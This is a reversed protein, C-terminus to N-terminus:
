EPKQESDYNLFESLEDESLADKGSFEKKLKELEVDWMSQGSEKLCVKELYLCPIANVDFAQYQYAQIEVGLLSLSKKTQRAFQRAIYVVKPSSGADLNSQPYMKKINLINECAWYYNSLSQAIQTSEKNASLLYFLVLAGEKDVGILDAYGSEKTGVQEDLITFSHPDEKLQHSALSLLEKKNDITLPKLALSM